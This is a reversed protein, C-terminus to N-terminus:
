NQWTREGVEDIFKDVMAKHKSADMDVEVVKAAAMLALDAIENKLAYITRNKEQEIDKSASEKLHIVHDETERIIDASRSEAKAVAQRIIDEGEAKANAIKQKYDTMMAEAEAQKHEVAEISHKIEHDRKEMFETVPKFLIKKLILYLIFTNVLQFVMTWGPEILGFKLPSAEAAALALLTM